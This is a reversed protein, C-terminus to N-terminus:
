QCRHCLGFFEMTHERTRFRHRRDLASIISTEKQIPVDKVRGCDDCVLHHHHRRPDNFEYHAHGHGLDVNRLLGARALTESSRYITVRDMRDALKEQLGAISLPRGARELCQLILRRATTARLGLDRLKQSHSM